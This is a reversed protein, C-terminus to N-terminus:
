TSASVSARDRNQKTSRPAVTSNLDLLELVSTALEAINTAEFFKITPVSVQLDSEIQTKLEFIILSDVLSTLTQQPNLKSEPLKLAKALVEILYTELMAQHKEPLAAILQERSLNGKIRSRAKTPKSQRATALTEREIHRLQANIFEAVLQGTEDFIRINATIIQNDRDRKINADSWLQKGSSGYFKFSEIGVMVIPEDISDLLIAILLQTGADVVGLPLIEKNNATELPSRIKGFAKETEPDLWIHELWQCNAGLYGGKEQLHQYFQSSTIEQHYLETITELVVPELSQDRDLEGLVIKGSAHLTWAPKRESDSATLSYIQFAVRDSDLPELILQVSRREDEALTLPQSIFVDEIHRVAKGLGERASALAMELYIVANLFPIGGLRHDRVLPLLDLSLQTEFQIQRLPSFLQRGLFPHATELYPTSTSPHHHEPADLWFRQRQFPYTPLALRQRQYHREFGSWDIELGQEYLTKLSPLLQQWDEQGRSLSPLWVASSEPLCQRGMGILVPHSGIEIFIRCFVWLLVPFLQHVSM